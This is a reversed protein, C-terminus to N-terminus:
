KLAQIFCNTNKGANEIWNKFGCIGALYILKYNKETQNKM